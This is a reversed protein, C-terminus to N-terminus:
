RAESIDSGPSRNLWSDLDTKFYFIKGAPKYFRPGRNMRRMTRLGEYSYGLYAATQCPTLKEGDFNTTSM